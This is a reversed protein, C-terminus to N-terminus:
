LSFVTCFAAPVRIGLMPIKTSHHHARGQRPNTSIRNLSKAGNLAEDQGSFCGANYVSCGTLHQTQRRLVWPILITACHRGLKWAPRLPSTEQRDYGQQENRIDKKAQGFFSWFFAGRTWAADGADCFPGHAQKESRQGLIAYTGHKKRLLFPNWGITRQLPWRELRSAAPGVAQSSPVRNRNFSQIPIGEM